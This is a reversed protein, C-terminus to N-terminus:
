VSKITGKPLVAGITHRQVKIAVGDSIEVTVFQEGVETVKGLVGGGTVHAFAHVDIGDRVLALCQLAYVRTPELLEEGLTRGLDAVHRSVDWGALTFFV